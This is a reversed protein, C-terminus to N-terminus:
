FRNEHLFDEIKRRSTKRIPADAIAPYGIPILAVLEHNEPVSLV